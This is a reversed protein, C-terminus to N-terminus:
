EEVFVCECIEQDIEFFDIYAKVVYCYRKASFSNGSLMIMMQGPDSHDRGSSIRTMQDYLDSAITYLLKASDEFRSLEFEYSFIRLDSAEIEPEAVQYWTTILIKEM